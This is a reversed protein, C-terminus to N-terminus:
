VGSYRKKRKQHSIKYDCLTNNMKEEQRNKLVIEATKFEINKNEIDQGVGVEGLEEDRTYIRGVTKYKEKKALM